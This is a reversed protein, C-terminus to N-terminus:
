KRNHATNKNALTHNFKSINNGSRRNPATRAIHISFVSDLNQISRLILCLCLLLRPIRPFCLFSLIINQM